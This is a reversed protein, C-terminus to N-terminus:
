LLHQHACRGTDDPGHTRCLRRDLLGSLGARPAHQILMVASPTESARVTVIKRVPVYHTQENFQHAEKGHDTQGTRLNDLSGNGATDLAGEGDSKRGDARELTDSVATSM